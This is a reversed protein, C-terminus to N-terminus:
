TSKGLLKRWEKKKLRPSIREISEFVRVNLQYLDEALIEKNIGWSRAKIIYPPNLWFKVGLGNKEGNGGM